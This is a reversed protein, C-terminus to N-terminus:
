SRACWAPKWDLRAQVDQWDSHLVFRHRLVRNPDTAITGLAELLSVDSDYVRSHEDEYIGAHEDQALSQWEQAVTLAELTWEIIEAPTAASLDRPARRRASDTVYAILRPDVSM